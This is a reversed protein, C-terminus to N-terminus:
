ESQFIFHNQNSPGGLADPGCTGAEHRGFTRMQKQNIQLGLSTHGQLVFEPRDPMLSIEPGAIHAVALLNTGHDLLGRLPMAADVYQDVIRTYKTGPRKQFDAFSVEIGDQAHIQAPSEQDGLGHRTLHFGAPATGDNVHARDIGHHGDWLDGGVVDAFATDVLECPGHGQGQGVILNADIGHCWAGDGGLQRLFRHQGILRRPL